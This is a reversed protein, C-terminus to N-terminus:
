HQWVRIWDARLVASEQGAAPPHPYGVALTLLVEMPVDPVHEKLTLRAVGDIYWTLSTKEWDLAFVHYGASFDSPGTFRRGEHLDDGGPGTWHVTMTASLTTGIFEVVDLEPPTTRSAPMLWFAPFFGAGAPIRLRAAFYGYTFTHRPTADWSDRGTSVMGSRWPYHLGDSGTTAQRQATLSLLGQDVTVQSPLYWESEHNGANTCGAVNWDYCTTWRSTDLASGTFDDQFVAHWPGPAAPSPGPVTGATSPGSSPAASSTAGTPPLPSLSPASQRDACGAGTAALVAAALLGRAVRLPPGADAPRGSGPPDPDARARRRLRPGLYRALVLLTTLGALTAVVRTATFAHGLFFAEAVLAAIALSVAVALCGTELVTSARRRSDPAPAAWRVAAAGPCVVLFATVLLVRLPNAAPLLTSALAIWGSGALLVEVAVPGGPIRRM